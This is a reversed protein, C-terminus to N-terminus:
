LPPLAQALAAFVRRLEETRLGFDWDNLLAQYRGEDEEAVCEAYAQPLEVNLQLAPAFAAFDDNARALAWREQGEAHARSLDAALESPVRRAREWDRRALRVKEGDLEGLDAGDLEELWGGIEEATAREHTLRALAGLQHARAAGGESPMMVLQDWSALM